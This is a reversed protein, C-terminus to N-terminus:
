QQGSFVYNQKIVVQASVIARGYQAWARKVGGWGGLLETKQSTHASQVTRWGAVSGQGRCPQFLHVYAGCLQVHM